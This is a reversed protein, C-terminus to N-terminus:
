LRQPPSPNPTFIVGPIDNRAHLFAPFHCISCHHLLKVPSAAYVTDSDEELHEKYKNFMGLWGTATPSSPCNATKYLAATHIRLSAQTPPPHHVSRLPSPPSHFISTLTKTRSTYCPCPRRGTCNRQLTMQVARNARGPNVPLNLTTSFTCHLSTCM